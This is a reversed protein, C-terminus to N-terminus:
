KVFIEIMDKKSGELHKYIDEFTLNMGKVKIGELNKSSKTLQRVPIDIWGSEVMMAETNKDLLFDIFKKAEEYHPAKAIMAVTNPTILTGMASDSQDLFVVKLKNNKQTASFADDTDTMGIALQGAVVMDRVVSNGDVIQVGKGQLNSYFEKAKQAGIQAYIAASQTATTGFVPNAMGVKRPPVKSNALDFLSTPIDRLPVIDTNVLLVRARGGFGTWYNQTDIYQKPIDVAVPSQYPSLVEESKLKITQIFENSWFVDAMPKNKEAILRNVLGTTKSAEVDYVPLVEIGTKQTFAKLIGESFVQDVATYVVVKKKTNQCGILMLCFILISLVVSIVRLM